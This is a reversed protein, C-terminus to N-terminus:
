LNVPWQCMRRAQQQAFKADALRDCPFSYGASWFVAGAMGPGTM